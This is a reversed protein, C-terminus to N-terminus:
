SSEHDVESQLHSRLAKTARHFRQRANAPSIALREAIDTFSLALDIRLMIIERQEASMHALAGRMQVARESSEPSHTSLQEKPEQALRLMAMRRRQHNRLQNRALNLAITSLWTRPAAREARYTQASRWGRLFAQQATDQADQPGLGFRRLLALLYGGHRAVFAAYADADGQASRALLQVDTM